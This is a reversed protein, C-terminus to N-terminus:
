VGPPLNRLAASVKHIPNGTAPINFNYQGAINTIGAFFYNVVQQNFSYNRRPRNRKSSRRAFRGADPSFSPSGPPTEKPDEPIPGHGPVFTDAPLGEIAYLTKLWSV